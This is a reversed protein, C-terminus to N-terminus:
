YNPIYNMKGFDISTQRNQKNECEVCEVLNRKIKKTNEGCVDCTAAIVGTEPRKCELQVPYTKADIITAKVVDGLQYSGDFGKMFSSSADSIHMIASAAPYVPKKNNYHIDLKLTSSTQKTIIGIVIDGKKPVPTGKKFPFVNARYTSKDVFLRGVVAAKVQNDEVFTRKSVPLLEEEVAIVDSPFVIKEKNPELVLRRFVM